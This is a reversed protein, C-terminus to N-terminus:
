PRPRSRLKRWAWAASRCALRWLLWLGRRTLRDARYNFRRIKLQWLDIRGKAHHRQCLPILDSPREKWLRRYNLHHCQLYCVGKWDSQCVYCNWGHRDFCARKVTEWSPDAYRRSLESRLITISKM